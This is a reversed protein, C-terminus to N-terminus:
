PKHIHELLRRLRISTPTDRYDDDLVGRKKLRHRAKWRERSSSSHRGM